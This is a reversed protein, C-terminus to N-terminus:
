WRFRREDEEGLGGAIAVKRRKEGTRASASSAAAPVTSVPQVVKCVVALAGAGAAAGPGAAEAGV